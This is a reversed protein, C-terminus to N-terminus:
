VIGSVMFNTSKRISNSGLADEATDCGITDSKRDPVLQYLASYRFIIYIIADRVM